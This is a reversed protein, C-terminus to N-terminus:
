GNKWGHPYLRVALWSETMAKERQSMDLTADLATFEGGSALLPHIDM